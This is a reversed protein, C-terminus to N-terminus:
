KPASVVVKVNALTRSKLISWDNVKDSIKMQKQLYLCNKKPLRGGTQFSVGTRTIGKLSQTTTIVHKDVLELTFNLGSTSM